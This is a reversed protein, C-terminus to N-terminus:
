HLVTVSVSSKGSIIATTLSLVNAASIIQNRSIMMAGNHLLNGSYFIAKLLSLTLTAGVATEKQIFSYLPIM